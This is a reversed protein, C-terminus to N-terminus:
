KYLNGVNIRDVITWNSFDKADGVVEYVVLEDDGGSVTKQFYYYRKNDDGENVDFISKGYDNKPNGKDYDPKEIIHDTGHFLEIRSM